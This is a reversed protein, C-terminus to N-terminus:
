REDQALILSEMTHKDSESLTSKAKTKKVQNNYQIEFIEKEKM